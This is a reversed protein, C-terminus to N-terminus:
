RRAQINDAKIEEINNYEWIQKEFNFKYYPYVLIGYRIYSGIFGSLDLVYILDLELKIMGDNADILKSKTISEVKSGGKIVTEKAFKSYFGKMPEFMDEQIDKKFTTHDPFKQSFILEARNLLWPTEQITFIDVKEIKTQQSEFVARLYIISDNNVIGSVYSYIKDDYVEMRERSINIDLPNEYNKIIYNRVMADRLEDSLQDDILLTINLNKQDKDEIGPKGGVLGLFAGSKKRVVIKTELRGTLFRNNIPFNRFRAQANFYNFNKDSKSANWDTTCSVETVRLDSKKLYRNFTNELYDKVLSNLDIDSIGIDGTNTEAFILTGCFFLVLLFM